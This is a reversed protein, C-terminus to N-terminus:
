VEISNPISYHDLRGTKAPKIKNMGDLFSRM